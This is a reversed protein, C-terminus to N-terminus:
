HCHCFSAVVSNPLRANPPSSMACTSTRPIGGARGPYVECPMAPMFNGDRKKM